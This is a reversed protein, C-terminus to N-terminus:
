EYRLAVMPDVTTARRAPLYCAVLAVAGLFLIVCLLTVPDLPSVGFLLSSLLRSVAIALVFGALMGTAVPRASQRLILALVDGRRAGLAMRVGVEHTRQIVAHSVMGYIGVSALLLGLLGVITSVVAGVRSLVFGPNMTILGELTEAYV